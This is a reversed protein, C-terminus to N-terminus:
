TDALISTARRLTNAVAEKRDEIQVGIVCLTKGKRELFELWQITGPFRCPFDEPLLTTTVQIERRETLLRRFNSHRVLPIALAMGGQSIDLVKGPFYYPRTGFARASLASRHAPIKIAARTAARVRDQKRRNPTESM